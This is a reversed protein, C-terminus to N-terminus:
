LYWDNNCEQVGSTLFKLYGLKKSKNAPFSSSNGHLNKNQMTINQGIYIIKIIATKAFSDYLLIASISHSIIIELHRYKFGSVLIKEDNNIWIEELFM